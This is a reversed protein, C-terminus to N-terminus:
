PASRLAARAIAERTDNLETPSLEIPRHTFANDEITTPAQGASRTLDQLWDTMNLLAASAETGADLLQHQEFSESLSQFAKMVDAPPGPDTMTLIKAMRNNWNEWRWDRWHEAIADLVTSNNDFAWWAGCQQAPDLHLGYPPMTPLRDARKWGAIVDVLAPGQELLHVLDIAPTYLRPKDPAVVTIICQPWRGTCYDILDREQFEAWQISWNPWTERMTEFVACRIADEKCASSHWLLMRNDVDIVAAAELNYIWNEVEEQATAFRLASLAGPLLDLHLARAGWHTYFKRQTGADIVVIEARSGM